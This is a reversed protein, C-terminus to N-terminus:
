IRRPNPPFTPLSLGWVPYTTQKGVPFSFRTKQPFSSLRIKVTRDVKHGTHYGTEVQITVREAENGKSSVFEMRLYVLRISVFQSAYRCKRVERM